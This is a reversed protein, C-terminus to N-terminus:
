CIDHWFDYVGWFSQIGDVVVVNVHWFNSYMICYPQDLQLANPLSRRACTSLMLNDLDQRRLHDFRAKVLGRLANTSTLAYAASQSPSTEVRTRSLPKIAPESPEFGSERHLLNIKSSYMISKVCGKHTLSGGGGFVCSM